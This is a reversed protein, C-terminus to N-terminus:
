EGLGELIQRSRANAAQLEADILVQLEAHQEGTLSPGGDRAARWLTMLEQLRSQQDASFLEDPRFPQIVVVTGKDGPTLRMRIADLAEGATKGESQGTRAVARFLPAGDPGNVPFIAVNNM